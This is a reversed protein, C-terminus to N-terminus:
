LTFDPLFDTEKYTGVRLLIGVLEITTSNLAISVGAASIYAGIAAVSTHILSVQGGLVYTSASGTSSAKAVNISTKTTGMTTFTTATDNLTTAIVNFSPPAIFNVASGGKLTLGSTGNWTINAPTVVNIGGSVFTTSTGTVTEKADGVVVQTQGGIIVETKDGAVVHKEAGVVVETIGGIVTRTESSDYTEKSGGLVIRTEGGGVTESFDTKVHVTRHGMVTMKQDKHITETQNAGVDQVQNGDVTNTQDHGVDTTHCHLVEEDFDKQAHTFIQEQGEHDEFRFENFGGGGLSSETKITSKTKDDPLPYPALNEGNYVCGTIIPRDPNGDVFEVVVEMGMRPIFMWGWGDGAWPQEVRLWCSSTEDGAGQRDWPFLVKVRGHEDPHIEEGAPGVVKATEVGEILPAPTRRAPRFPLDSATVSFTAAYSEHRPGADQWSEPDHTVETVLYSGDAGLAPSGTLEFVRGPRVAFAQAIGHRATRQVVHAEHRLGAKTGLIAATMKRDVGHEYERREGPLDEDAAGDEDGIPAAATLMSWDRLQVHTISARKSPRLRRVSDRGDSDMHDALFPISGVDAFGSNDDGLLVLETDGAHDFVYHIGEEEFLRHLFDLDAEEYQVCYERPAHSGNLAIRAERGYPGLAEDLVAQAIEEISENQFIRSDRRLALLALAPRVRLHLRPEHDVDPPDGRVETVIGVTREESDARRMTFVADKGLLPGPDPDAPLTLELRLDFPTSIAERLEFHAVVAGELGEIEVEFRIRDDTM